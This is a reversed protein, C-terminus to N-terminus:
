CLEVRDIRGLNPAINHRTGDVVLSCSTDPAFARIVKVRVDFGCNNYVQIFGWEVVANVCAPAPTNLTGIEPAVEDSETLLTSWDDESVAMSEGPSLTATSSHDSNEPVAHAESAFSTAGGFSMALVSAGVLVKRVLASKRSSKKIGLVVVSGRAKGLQFM